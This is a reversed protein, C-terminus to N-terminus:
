KGKTFITKLKAKIKVRLNFRKIKRARNKSEYWKKVKKLYKEDKASVYKKNKYFGEMVGFVNEAKVIERQIISDGSVVYDQEQYGIIRHLVEQGTERKYFVVDYLSPKETISKIIVSHKKNKIFPWMSNGKPVLSFVGNELLVKETKSIAM